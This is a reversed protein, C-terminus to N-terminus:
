QPAPLNFSPLVSSYGSGKLKKKKFKFYPRRINGLSVKFKHDEKNLRRPNYALVVEGVGGEALIPLWGPLM